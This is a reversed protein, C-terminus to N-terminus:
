PCTLVIATERDAALEEIENPPALPDFLLLRGGDDIGHPRSWSPGTRGRSGTPTRHRGIGRAQRFRACPPMSSAAELLARIGEADTDVLPGGRIL